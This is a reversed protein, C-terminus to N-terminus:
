VELDKLEKEIDIARNKREEELIKRLEEEFYRSRREIFYLRLLYVLFITCLILFNWFVFSVIFYNLEIM